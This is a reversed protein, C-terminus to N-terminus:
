NHYEGGYELFSFESSIEEQYSLLCTFFTFLGDSEIPYVSLMHFLSPYWFNHGVSVSSGPNPSTLVQFLSVKFFQLM